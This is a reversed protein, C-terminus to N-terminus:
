KFKFFISISTVILHYQVVNHAIQIGLQLWDGLAATFYLYYM